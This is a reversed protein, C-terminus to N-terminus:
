RHKMIVMLKHTEFSVLAFKIKLSVLGYAHWNPKHLLNTVCHQVKSFGRIEWWCKHCLNNDLMILKLIRNTKPRTSLLYIWKYCIGWWCKPVYKSTETSFSRYTHYGDMAIEHKKVLVYIILKECWFRVWEAM